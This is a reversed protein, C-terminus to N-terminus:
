TSTLAYSFCFIQHSLVGSCFRLPMYLESANSERNRSVQGRLHGQRISLWDGQVGLQHGSLWPYRPLSLLSLSDWGREGKSQVLACGKWRSLPESAHSKLSNVDRGASLAASSTPTPSGPVHTLVHQAGHAPVMPLQRASGLTLDANHSCTQIRSDLLLEARITGGM